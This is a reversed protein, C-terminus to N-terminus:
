PRPAWGPRARARRAPPAGPSAAPSASAGRGATRLRRRSVRFPADLALLLVVALVGAGGLYWPWPGMLDFLTGATGKGRLFLYNGGTVADAPVAVLVTYLATVGFVRPVAHIRPHLGLGVVLFTAALVPGVHAIYFEFYFYGPFHWRTDPQLWGQIAGACGWGYTLEVLLPRRTWLAVAAVLNAVQCVDIPLDSSAHWTGGTALVVQWVIVNGALLVGLARSLPGRWGGPRWRAAACLVVCLSGGVAAAGLHEPTTLLILPM